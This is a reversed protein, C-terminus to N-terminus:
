RCINQGQWYPTVPDDVYVWFESFDCTGNMHLDLDIWEIAKMGMNGGKNPLNM